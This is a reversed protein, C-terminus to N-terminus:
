RCFSLPIMPDKGSPRAPQAPVARLICRTVFEGLLENFVEPQELMPAHGCRPITQLESNRLLEYFQWATTLPTIRDNEGWILLAPADLMPLLQALNDRKASQALRVLQLASRRNRVVEAVEDIMEDMVLAPDFFVEAIKNRLWERTPRRPVNRELGREFLGSSGSLVLAVCRGPEVHAFRAAIHGGLSNGVLIARTIGADAVYQRLARLIFEVPERNEPAYLVPLRPAHVDFRDGVHNMASRWNAPAGFMGHLFIISTRNTSHSADNM